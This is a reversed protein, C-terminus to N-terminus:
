QGEEQATERELFAGIETLPVRMKSGVKVVKLRKAKVLGYVTNKGYGLTKAAQPISLTAKVVDTQTVNQREM